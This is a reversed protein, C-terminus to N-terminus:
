SKPMGQESRAIYWNGDIRTLSWVMRGESQVRGLVANEVDQYWTLEVVATDGSVSVTVDRVRSDYVKTVIMYSSDFQAQIQARSLTSTTGLFDTWEAPDTYMAALAASDMEKTLQVYRELFADISGLSHPAPSALGLGDGVVVVSVIVVLTVLWPAQM